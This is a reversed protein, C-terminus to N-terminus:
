KGGGTGHVVELGILPLRIDIDGQGVKDALVYAGCLLMLIIFVTISVQNKGAALKTLARNDKAYHKAVVGTNRAIEGLSSSLSGLLEQTQTTREDIQRVLSTLREFQGNYHGNEM